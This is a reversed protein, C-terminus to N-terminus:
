ISFPRYALLPVQPHPITSFSPPIPIVDFFCTKSTKLITKNSDLHPKPSTQHPAVSQRVKTQMTCILLGTRGGWHLATANIYYKVIHNFEWFLPRRITSTLHVTSRWFMQKWEYLGIELALDWLRVDCAYCLFVVLSHTQVLLVLEYQSEWLALVIEFGIFECFVTFYHRIGGYQLGSRRQHM